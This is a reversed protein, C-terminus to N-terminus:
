SSSPRHVRQTPECALPCVSDASATGARAESVYMTESRLEKFDFLPHRVTDLFLQGVKLTLHGQKHFSAVMIETRNPVDALEADREQDIVHRRASPWPGPRAADNASPADEQDM